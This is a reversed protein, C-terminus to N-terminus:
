VGGLPSMGRIEEGLCPTWTAGGPAVFHLCLGVPPALRGLPLTGLGALLSAPFRVKPIEIEQALLGGCACRPGGPRWTRFAPTAQQGCTLCVRTPCFPVDPEVTIEDPAAGLRAAAQELVSRLSQEPRLIPELAYPGHTRGEDALRCCPSLLIGSADLRPTPGGHFRLIRAPGLEGRLIAEAALAAAIAGHEGAQPAGADPNLGVEDLCSRRLDALAHDEATFTCVGCACGPGGPPPLLTVEVQRSAATTALRVFGIGARNAREACHRAAARNDVCAAVLDFRAFFGTGFSRIDEVYAVPTSAPDHSRLLRATEEVKTHGIGAQDFLQKALNRREIRDHDVLTTACGAQGLLRALPLGVNGLGVILVRPLM